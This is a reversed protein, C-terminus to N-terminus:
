LMQQYMKEFNNCKRNYWFAVIGMAIMLGVGSFGVKKGNEAAKASGRGDVNNQYLIRGWITMVLGVIILVFISYVIYDACIFM